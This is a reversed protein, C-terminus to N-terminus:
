AKPVADPDEALLDSVTVGFVNAILLLKDIKPAYRGAKWNPLSSQSIGAQQCVQYDTMGRADRLRAYREYSVAM